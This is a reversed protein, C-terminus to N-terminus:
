LALDTLLTAPPAAKATAADAPTTTTQGADAATATETTM